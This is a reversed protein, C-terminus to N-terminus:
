SILLSTQKNSQLYRSLGSAANMRAFDRVLPGEDVTASSIALYINRMGLCPLPAPQTISGETYTPGQNSASDQIFPSLSPSRLRRKGM